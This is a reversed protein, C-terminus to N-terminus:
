RGLQAAPWQRMEAGPRVRDPAGQTRGRDAGTRELANNSQVNGTLKVRRRCKECIYLPEFEPRLRDTFRLRVIFYIGFLVTLIAAIVEDPLGAVIACFAVVGIITMAVVRFLVVTGVRVVFPIKALQMPIGCKPCIPVAINMHLRVVSNLPRGCRDLRPWVRGVIGWPGSWRM